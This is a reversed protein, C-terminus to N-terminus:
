NVNIAYLIAKMDVAATYTTQLSSMTNRTTFDNREGNMEATELWKSNAFRLGVSLNEKNIKKLLLSSFDEHQNRNIIYKIKLFLQAPMYLQMHM